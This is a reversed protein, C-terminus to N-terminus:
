SVNKIAEDLYQLLEDENLTYRSEKWKNRLYTLVKSVKPGRLLGREMLRHGSVPFRPPTWQEVKVLTDRHDLYKLLEQLREKTKEKTGQMDCILDECYAFQNEGFDDDRHELVFMGLQFEDKSM